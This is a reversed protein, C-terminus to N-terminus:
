RSKLAVHAQRRHGAAGIDDGAKTLPLGSHRHAAAFHLALAQAHRDLHPVVGANGTTPSFPSSTHVRCKGAIGM